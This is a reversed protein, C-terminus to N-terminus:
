ELSGGITRNKGSKAEYVFVDDARPVLSISLIALDDSLRGDTFTMVDQLIHKTLADGSKTCALTKLLGEEGYFGGDARRAETVGDTYLVLTDSPGAQIEDEVFSLGSFAGLISSRTRLLQTEGEPTKLIAPPHGGSCYSIKGSLTDLICFFVTVFRGGDIDKRITANTMELIEAPTHGQHAFAKITNQVTVTLTSASIGKGAVDGILIGIKGPQIQFIDYFDGGVRASRTASRYHHGFEIGPLAQPVCILAEQLTQAIQRESEYLRANELSLALAAALNRAFDVQEDTLLDSVPLDLLTLSGILDDKAMIPVYLVSDIGGLEVFAMSLNGPLEERTLLQPEGMEAMRQLGWSHEFSAKSGVLSEPLEYVHRIEWHDERRLQIAAKGCELAQAAKVVVAQLIEDIELTSTIASSIETLASQMREAKTQGTVDRFVLVAGILSGDAARIPGCSDAISCVSGDKRILATHNALGVVEGTSLAEEVPNKAPKGTEESVINFVELLPKGAAEAATWGTLEEAVKNLLVINQETDTAIVGDGISELTVSLRERETHLDRQVAIREAIEAELEAKSATVSKLDSTMMNFAKSLQGIEDNQKVPISFDLNGSGIIKTGKHLKLISTLVRRYTLVYNSFVFTLFVGILLLILTNNKQKLEDRREEIIESLRGTDFVLSRHHVEMRSWSTQMFKLDSVNLESKPVNGVVGKIESFIAELRKQSDEIHAALVKEEGTKPEFSKMHRSLSAHKSTWRNISQDQPDFLYASSLYSLQNAEQRLDSVVSKQAETEEVQRNTSVASFAIAALILAFLTTTVFFQTKIKM